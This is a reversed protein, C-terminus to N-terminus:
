NHSLIAWLLYALAFITFLLTLAQINASYAADTRAKIGQKASTAMKASKASSKTGAPRCIKTAVKTVPRNLVAKKVVVKKTSSIKTAM